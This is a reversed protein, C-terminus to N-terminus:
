EWEVEKVFNGSAVHHFADPPTGQTYYYIWCTRGDLVIERRDYGFPRELADVAALEADSVKFIELRISSSQTADILMPYRGNTHLSYPIEFVGEVQPPRNLHVTHNHHGVKLTGYVVDRCFFSRAGSGAVM